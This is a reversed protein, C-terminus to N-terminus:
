DKLAKGDLVHRVAKALDNRGLPKHLFARIGAEEATKRDVRASYGTCLIVPIEPRIKLVEGALEIGTLEPMTQDTIVLDFLDPDDMFLNLAEPSKNMTKVRYGYATLIEYVVDTVLTEDDIYMIHENGGRATDNKEAAAAVEMNIKPFFLRFTTGKGPATEVQINGNHTQMVGYMVALGLGTGEGMKKTTFYPEFIKHLIEHSIGTGNDSVEVISYEGEPIQGHIGNEPVDLYKEYLVIDLDGNEEMAHVANTALNIIIEYIKTSDASVPKTEEQIKCHIMVSSPVTAKLLSVAEHLVPSLFIASRDEGGKRSFALIQRVLDKAREGAKLIRDFYGAFRSDRDIQTLAIDAYGIIGGLVNNFDHAIGGALHGIAEMKESQRLRAEMEKKETIDQAIAAIGATGGYENTLRSLTLLVPIHTGDKKQRVGEVGRIHEGSICRALLLDAQEHNEIPTLMKVPHGVLEERSWGYSSAAEDNVDLIIGRPDAIITPLTSDTFVTSLRRLEQEATKRPTIDQIQSIFYLPEKNAARVISVDQQAWVTHGDRHIYKKEMRYNDAEGRILKNLHRLDTELDDAHTIEQFSMGLLEDEPYGLITCISKNIRTWKGELSLLAMGIGAYHFANRFRQESEQLAREHMLIENQSEYFQENTAALEENTAELEENAAMLEENASILKGQIEKEITIDKGSAWINVLKGDEVVGYIDVLLYLWRGDPMIVTVEQKHSTYNNRIFGDLVDDMTREEVLDTYKRGVTDEKSNQRFIDQWSRRNCDIVTSNYIMEAQEGVPLAAYLNEPARLYIIFDRSVEIFDSYHTQITQLEKEIRIRDTIDTSMGALLVRKRATDRRMMGKANVTRWMGDNEKINLRYSIDYKSGSEISSRIENKVAERDEPHIRQEWEDPIGKFSGPEFGFIQQMRGDWIMRDMNLDWIWSGATAADLSLQLRLENEHLQEEVVKRESIDRVFSLIFSEGAFSYSCFHAEIPFTTGDKRKHVSELTASKEGTLLKCIKKVEDPNIHMYNIDMITM